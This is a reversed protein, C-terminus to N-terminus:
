GHRGIESDCRIPRVIAGLWLVTAGLLYVSRVVVLVLSLLWGKLM